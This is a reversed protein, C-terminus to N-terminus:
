RRQPKKVDALTASGETETKILDFDECRATVFLSQSDFINHFRQISLLRSTHFAAQKMENNRNEGKGEACPKIGVGSLRVLVYGIAETGANLTANNAM